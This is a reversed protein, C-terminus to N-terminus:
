ASRCPPATPSTSTSRSCAASSPHTAASGRRGARRRVHDDFDPRAARLEAMQRQDAELDTLEPASFIWGLTAQIADTKSPDDDGPMPSYPPVGEMEGWLSYDMQEPTLGPTRVGLIRTVSANLYCYGGFCGIIETNARRSSASRRLRRLPGARGALRARRVPHRRPELDGPHGALPVGRRRQRATWVPYRESPEGDCIWREPRTTSSRADGAMAASAVVIPPSRARGLRPAM